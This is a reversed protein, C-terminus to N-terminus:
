WWGGCFLHCRVHGRTALQSSVSLAGLLYTPFPPLACTRENGISIIHFILVVLHIKYLPLACTRENGISIIGTVVWGIPGTLPPLACTRENGISIKQLNESFEDMFLPL